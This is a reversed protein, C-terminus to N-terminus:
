YSFADGSFHSLSWASIDNLRDHKPLQDALAYSFSMGKGVSVLGCRKAARVVQENAAILELVEAPSEQYLGILHGVLTEAMARTPSTVGYDLLTMLKFNRYREALPREQHRQRVVMYGTPQGSSAHRLLWADLQGARRAMALKVRFHTPDRCFHLSQWAATGALLQRLDIDSLSEMRERVVGRRHARGRAFILQSGMWTAPQTLYRAARRLLPQPIHAALVPRVSRLALLRPVYGAVTIGLKRFIHLTIDNSFVSGRAIGVAQLYSTAEGQLWTSLGQGRYAPFTFNDGTWAWRRPQQDVYLLDPITRFYCCLQDSKDLGYFLLPFDPSAGPFESLRALEAPDLISRAYPHRRPLDSRDEALVVRLTADRRGDFTASM